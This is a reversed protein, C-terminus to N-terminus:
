CLLRTSDVSKLSKIKKYKAFVGAIDLDEPTTIKIIKM